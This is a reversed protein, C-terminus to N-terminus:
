YRVYMRLIDCINWIESIELFIMSTYNSTVTKGGFILVVIFGPLFVRRDDCFIRSDELVNGFGMRQLTILM